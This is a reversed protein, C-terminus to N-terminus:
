ADEKVAAAEGEPVYVSVPEGALDADVAKLRDNYALLVDRFGEAAGEALTGHEDVLSALAAREADDLSRLMNPARGHAVLVRAARAAVTDFRPPTLSM